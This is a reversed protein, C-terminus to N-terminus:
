WVKKKTRNKKKRKEQVKEERNERPNRDTRQVSRASLCKGLIDLEEPYEALAADSLNNFQKQNNLRRKTHVSQRNGVVRQIAM